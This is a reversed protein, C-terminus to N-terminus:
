EISVNVGINADVQAEVNTLNVPAHYTSKLIIEVDDANAAIRANFQGNKQTHLPTSTDADNITILANSTRSPDFV